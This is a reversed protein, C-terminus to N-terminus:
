KKKSYLASFLVTTILFFGSLIWPIHSAHGSAQTHGEIEQGGSATNGDSGQVHAEHGEEEGEAFHFFQVYAEIYERGAEVNNVNFNRLSM